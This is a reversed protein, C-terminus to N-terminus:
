LYEIVYIAGRAGNGGNGGAAPGFDANIGAGGGGGGGSPFGGNGGNGGGSLDANGEGGGGGGTGGTFYTSLSDSGNSGPAGSGLAPGGAAGAVLVAGDVSKISGSDGGAGYYPISNVYVGGGGGGTAQIGGVVDSSSTNNSGSTGVGTQVISFEILKGAAVGASDTGGIGGQAVIYGFNSDEGNSVPNFTASDNTTGLSGASGDGVTYSVSAGAGGFFSVPASVHTLGGAGGGAGARDANSGSNDSVAGGVGGAGGAFVYVEVLKTNANLTHTGSGATTYSTVVTASSGGGGGGTTFGQIYSM